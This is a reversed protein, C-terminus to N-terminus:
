PKPRRGLDIITEFVALTSSGGIGSLGWEWGTVEGDEDWLVVATGGNPELRAGLSLTPDVGIGIPSLFVGFGGENVVTLLVRAPDMRIKTAVGAIAVFAGARTSLPVGLRAVLLDRINSAAM